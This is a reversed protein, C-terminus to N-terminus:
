NRQLREPVEDLPLLLEELKGLAIALRQALDDQLFKWFSQLRDHAVKDLVQQCLVCKSSGATGPFEMDPEIDAVFFKAAAFLLEEWAKSGVERDGDKGTSGKGRGAEARRPSQLDAM